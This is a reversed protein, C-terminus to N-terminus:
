KNSVFLNYKVNELDLDDTLIKFAILTPTKHLEKKNYSSDHLKQFYKATEIEINSEYPIISVKEIKDNKEAM